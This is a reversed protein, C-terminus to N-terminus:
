SGHALSLSFEYMDYTLAVAEDPVSDPVPEGREIAAEQAVQLCQERVMERRREKSVGRKLAELYWDPVMLDVIAPIGM